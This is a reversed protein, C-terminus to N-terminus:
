EEYTPLASKDELGTICTVLMVLKVYSSCKISVLDLRDTQNTMFIEEKNDVNKM